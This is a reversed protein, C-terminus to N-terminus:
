LVCSQAPLLVVVCKEVHKQVAKASNPHWMGRHSPPSCPVIVQPRPEQPLPTPDPAFPSCRQATLVRPHPAHHAPPQVPQLAAPNPTRPPTPVAVPAGEVACPESVQPESSHCLSMARRGSRQPHPIQMSTVPCLGTSPPQPVTTDATGSFAFSSTRPPVCCLFQFPLCHLSQM